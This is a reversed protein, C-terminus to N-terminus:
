VMPQYMHNEIPRLSIQRRCWGHLVQIQRRHRAPFGLDMGQHLPFGGHSSGVAVQLYLLQARTKGACQVLVLGGNRRNCTTLQDGMQLVPEFVRPLTVVVVGLRQGLTVPAHHIENVLQDAFTAIRPDHEIIGAGQQPAELLHAALGNELGECRQGAIGGSLGRDGVDRWSGGRNAPLPDLVAREDGVLGDHLRHQPM